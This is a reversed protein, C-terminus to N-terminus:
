APSGEAIPTKAARGALWTEAVLIGLVAVILWQWFKQRSEIQTDQAQQRKKAVEAVVVPKVLRCGFQELTEAGVASTKSELADLNVAFSQAREEDVGAITYVGPEDTEDFSHVDAAVKSEAGDPKTLTFATGRKSDDGFPVQENVTFFTRGLRDTDEHNLLAAVLLVFKWSRALQSDSPQWGSALLLVHGKGVTWEVVAPDGNEFKAVIKAGTLQDSKLRRYKWFHIPTFDNFQPGAMAAFLPHSFDIQGLMAFDKVKAEEIDLLPVGVLAALTGAGKSDRLVAVVSGGGEVYKRLQGVEGNSLQSTVVVLPTANASDLPLAQDRPPVSLAIARAFGEALARELYFRLGKADDPRDGGLYLVNVASNSRTALYLTNDFDYNDGSLRLRNPSALPHPRPVRVIRSEGAPVYVPTADGISKHSKDLWALQFEDRNSAADNSVRVRMEREAIAPNEREDSFVYHLGANTKQSPAVPKLELEVDEPWPYDALANLRSGEQMDSVLVIRRAVSLQQNSSEATNEVFDVADMLAQGLHTAAWTPSLEKLRSQVTARREDPAIQSMNEFSIVPRLAEDCAFLAVQDQPRRDAMFKDVAGVAQQWLDGRRMSASTDIIVAARTSAGDGAAPPEESRLFPRAFAFALLMIAIGRLLLLLFHDLRSRRALRPPSPSLFMLSSFSFEGKPQRRILHFIVPLSIALLGLAYIPALFSM